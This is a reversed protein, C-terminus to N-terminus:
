VAMMLRQEVVKLWSLLTDRNPNWQQCHWSFWLVREPWGPIPSDGTNQPMRGDALRLDVDTWFCDPPAFPYGAPRVIFVDTSPKSWGAPLRVSPLKIVDGAEGRLVVSVDPFKQTLEEVHTESPGM